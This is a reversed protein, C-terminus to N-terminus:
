GAASARRDSAGAALLADTFARNLERARGLSKRMSSGGFLTRFFGRNAARGGERPYAMGFDVSWHKGNMSIISGAGIRRQWGPTIIEVSATPAHDLRGGDGETISLAQGTVEVTCPFYGFGKKVNGGSSVPAVACYPQTFKATVSHEM